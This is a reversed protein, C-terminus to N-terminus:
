SVTSAEPAAGPSLLSELGAAATSGAAQWSFSGEALRRAAKAMRAMREPDALLGAVRSPMEDIDCIEAEIGPTVNLGRVGVPTSVLPTGSALFEITKISTGSGSSLPCLTVDAVQLYPVVDPVEGVRVIGDAAPRGLGSRGVVMVTVGARKYDDVQRELALVGEVNPPHGSGVFVALREEPALGLRLRLEVGSDVPVAQFRDPDVGNPVVATSRAGAGRARVADEDSTVLVLDAQRLALEEIRVVERSIQRSWWGGRPLYMDAEISHEHLVMPVGPPTHSRVWEWQYPPHVMVVDAGRLARRLAQHPWISLLRSAFAPPYGARGMIAAWALMLPDRCHFDSWADTVRHSQRPWPLDTRQIHLAFSEVTWREGLNALIAAERIQNGRRPPDIASMTVVVLRHPATV